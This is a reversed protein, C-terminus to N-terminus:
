ALGLRERIIEEVRAIVQDLTLSTSDIVVADAAPQLPSLARTRDRQDRERMERLVSEAAAIPAAPAAEIQEYRRQSRVVPDADLFIKVDADPFVATGIDRGEMVIRGNEGLERQLRVMWKRIAPHVSVKSAADTVSNDRLRSTVEVGDLYVRNGDPSAELRISSSAALAELGAADEPSVGNEIAKLAFARYMAGTELNLLNFRSAIRAALTSKGAGAPGDIAIISRQQQNM